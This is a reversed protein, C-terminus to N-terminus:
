QGNRQQRIADRLIAAAQPISYGDDIAQAALMEARDFASKWDESLAPLEKISEIVVVQQHGSLSEPPDVGLAEAVVQLATLYGAQFAQLDATQPTLRATVVSATRVAKLLADEIERKSRLDWYM